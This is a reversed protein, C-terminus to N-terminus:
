IRSLIWALAGGTLFATTGAILCRKITRISQERRLRTEASETWIPHPTRPKM